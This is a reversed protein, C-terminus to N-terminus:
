SGIFKTFFTTMNKWLNSNTIHPEIITEDGQILIEENLDELKNLANLAENANQYRDRFDNRVMRELFDALNKSLNPALDRCDLDGTKRDRPLQEPALGTIAQIATVGLGYIDSYFHPHGLQQERAMYGPTGIVVTRLNGQRETLEM